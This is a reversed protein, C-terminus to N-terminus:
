QTKDEFESLKSEILALKETLRELKYELNEMQVKFDQLDTSNSQPYTPTPTSSATNALSDLFSLPNSPAASQSNSFDIYGDSQETEQPADKLLGKKKLLTLDVIEEKKKFIPM